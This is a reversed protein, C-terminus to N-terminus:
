ILNQFVSPIISVPIFERAETHELGGCAGCPTAHARVLDKMERHSIFIREESNHLSYCILNFYILLKTAEQTQINASATKGNYESSWEAYTHRFHAEKLGKLYSLM